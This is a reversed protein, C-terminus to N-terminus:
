GGSERFIRNEIEGQYNRVESSDYNWRDAARISMSSAFRGGYWRAVIGLEEELERGCRLARSNAEEIKSGPFEWNLPM